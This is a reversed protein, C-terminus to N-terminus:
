KGIKRQRELDRTVTMALQGIAVAAVLAAAAAVAAAVVLITKM